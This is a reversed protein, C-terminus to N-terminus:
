LFIIELEASPCQVHPQCQTKDDEPETWVRWTGERVRASTHSCLLLLLKRQLCKIVLIIDSLNTQPGSTGISCLEFSSFASFRQRHVYPTPPVRCLVIACLNAPFHSGYLPSPLRLICSFSKIKRFKRHTQAARQM